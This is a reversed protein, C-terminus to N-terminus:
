RRVDREPNGSLAPAGSYPQALGEGIMIAAAEEDALAGRIGARRATLIIERAM